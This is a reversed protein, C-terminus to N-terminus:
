VTENILRDIPDWAYATQPLASGGVRTISTAVRKGGLHEYFFSAPNDRLVWAFASKCGMAALHQASARLLLRGLGYEKWDDLVYLTDVEGEAV